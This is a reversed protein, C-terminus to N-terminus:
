SVEAEIRKDSWAQRTLVVLSDMARLADTKNPHVMGLEKRSVLNSGAYREELLVYGAPAPKIQFKIRDVNM